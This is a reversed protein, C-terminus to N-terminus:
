GNRAEIPARRQESGTRPPRLAMFAATRSFGTAVPASSASRRRAMTSTRMALAPRRASGLGLEGGIQRREDRVPKGGRAPARQELALDLRQGVGAQDGDRAARMSALSAPTARAAM